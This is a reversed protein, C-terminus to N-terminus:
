SKPAQRISRAIIWFESSSMKQSRLAVGFACLFSVLINLFGAFLVGLVALWFPSSYLITAGLSSAAAALAGSSLTVHRVDFPIGFFKAFIPTMGLLFGLSINSAFNSTQNRVFSGVQRARAAGLVYVLNRNESIAQPLNRLIMWNHVWGGCISSVFLLVGTAAAYIPTLGLLSLGAITQDAYASTLIPGASVKYYIWSVLLVIPVVAILNGLVASFQTRILSNIESSIEQPSDFISHERIKRALNAATMAPQKTALTFHFYQIVLFSLSYNLSAFFGSMFLSFPLAGIMFKILTTFATVFGGGISRKIMSMYESSNRAIYKEGNDASTEVIKRSILDVNERLLSWLSRHRVSELVLHSIFNQLHSAQPTASFCLQSLIRIRQLLLDACELRFVLSVSVGHNNMQEYVQQLQKALLNLNHNLALHIEINSLRVSEGGVQSNMNEAFKLAIRNTEFFPSQLYDKQSDLKSTRSRISPHLGQAGLQLCLLVLAQRTDRLWPHNMGFQKESDLFLTCCDQFIEPEIQKIWLTDAENCFIQNFVGVLDYDSVVDPFAKNQIREVAEALVGERTPIGSTALLEVARTDSVISILARNVSKKWKPNKHLIQIIYKVRGAQPGGTSFDLSSNQSSETRIWQLLDVFWTLRKKLSLDPTPCESLLYDLNRRNKKAKVLNSLVRFFKIM